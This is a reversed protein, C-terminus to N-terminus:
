CGICISKSIERMKRDRARELAESKDRAEKAMASLRVAQDAPSIQVSSSAGAGVRTPEESHGFQPFIVLGLSTAVIFIKLSLEQHLV